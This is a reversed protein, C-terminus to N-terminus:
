IIHFTKLFPLRCKKPEVKQSCRVLQFAIGIGEQYVKCSYLFSIVKQYNGEYAGSSVNKLPPSLFVLSRRRGPRRM